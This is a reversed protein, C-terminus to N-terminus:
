DAPTRQVSRQVDTPKVRSALTSWPITTHLEACKEKREVAQSSSDAETAAFIKSLYHRRLNKQSSFRRPTAKAQTFCATWDISELRRRATTHPHQATVKSLLDSKTLLARIQLLDLCARGQSLRPWSKAEKMHQLKQLSLQQRRM